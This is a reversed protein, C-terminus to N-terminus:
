PAAPSLSESVAPGPSRARRAPGPQRLAPAAPAGARGSSHVPRILAPSRLRQPGPRRRPGAPGPRPRPESESLSGHPRDTFPPSHRGPGPPDFRRGTSPRPLRNPAAQCVSSRLNRGAPHHGAAASVASLFSLFPPQCRSITSILIDPFSIPTHLLLSLVTAHISEM